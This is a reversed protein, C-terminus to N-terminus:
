SAQERREVILRALDGFREIGEPLPNHIRDAVHHCVCLLAVFAVAGSFSGLFVGASGGVVIGLGVAVPLALCVAALQVLDAASRLRWASPGHLEPLKVGNIWEARKWLDRIRQSSKIARLPTSPAHRRAGAEPLGCLGLFVGAPACRSGFITVPEFSATQAKRAILKALARVTFRPSIEQLWHDWATQRQEETKLKDGQLQLWVVWREESWKFQFYNALEELFYLPCDHSDRAADMYTSLPEDLALVVSDGCNKTVFAQIGRFAQEVSYKTQRRDNVLSEFM